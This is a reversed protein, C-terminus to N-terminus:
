CSGFDQESKASSQPQPVFASGSSSPKLKHYSRGRRGVLRRFESSCFAFALFHSGKRGHWSKPSFNSLNYLSIVNFNMSRFRFIFCQPLLHFRLPTADLDAVTNNWQIFLVTLISLTSYVTWYLLPNSHTKPENRRAYVCGSRRWRGGFICVAVCFRDIKPPGSSGECQVQFSKM